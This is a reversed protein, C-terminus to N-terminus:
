RLNELAKLTDFQLCNDDRSERTWSLEAEDRTTPASPALLGIAASRASAVKQARARTGSPLRNFPSLLSRRSM